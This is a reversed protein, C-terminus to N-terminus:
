STQYKNEMELKPQNNRTKEKHHKKEGLKGVMASSEGTQLNDGERRRKAANM